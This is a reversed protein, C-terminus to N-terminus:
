GNSAEKIDGCARLFRARDFRPNEVALVGAIGRALKEVGVQQEFLGKTDVLTKRIEAALAEYHKKSM